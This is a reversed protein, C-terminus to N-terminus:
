AAVHQPASRGAGHGAARWGAGGPSGRGQAIGRLRGVRGGATSAAGRRPRTARLGASEAARAPGDAVGGAVSGAPNRERGGNREM